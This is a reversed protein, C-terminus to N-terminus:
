AVVHPLAKHCKQPSRGQAVIRLAFNMRKGVRQKERFEIANGLSLNPTVLIRIRGFIASIM